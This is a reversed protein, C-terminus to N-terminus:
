KFQPTSSDIALRKTTACATMGAKDGIFDVFLISKGGSGYIGAGTITVNRYYHDANANVCFGLLLVILLKKM